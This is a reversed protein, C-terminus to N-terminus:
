RLDLNYKVQRYIHRVISILVNSSRRWAARKMTSPEDVSNKQFFLTQFENYFLAQGKKKIFSLCMNYETRDGKLGESYRGFKELFTSRRLHPHDSYCYIKNYNSGYPKIEMRSFHEDFHNLYPFPFYAYFRVLDLKTDAEMFSFASELRSPFEETPEFDEQVYLTYQKGVTDQGKNLNHGLGMNQSSTVLRFKYDSMLREIYKLNEYDSGDDSVIIEGFSCSLAGFKRLLNELSKARNFHTILLSIQPFSYM